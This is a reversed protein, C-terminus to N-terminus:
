KANSLGIDIIEENIEVAGQNSKVDVIPYKAREDKSIAQKGDDSIKEIIYSDRKQDDIKLAGRYGVYRFDGADPNKIFERDGNLTKFRAQNPETSFGVATSAMATWFNDDVGRVQNRGYDRDDGRPWASM